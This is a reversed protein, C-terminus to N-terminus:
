RHLRIVGGIPAVQLRDAVGAEKAAAMLRQLPEDIPEESLIFTEYHMPIITRAGMALAMQLMEEPTAHDSHFTEPVYCGIPIFAANVGGPCATRVAEALAPAFATDGFFAISCNNKQLLYLLTERSTPQSQRHGGHNSAFATVQVDKLRYAGYGSMPVLPLPVGSVPREDGEPLLLPTGKPLRRLSRPDLHDVHAHTVLVGDLDVIGKPDIAPAVRRRLLAVRDTFIPDTLLRVGQFEIIWTSHGVWGFLIDDASGLPLTLQQSADLMPHSLEYRLNRVLVRLTPPYDPAFLLLLAALVTALGFGWSLRKM